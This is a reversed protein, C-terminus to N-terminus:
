KGLSSREECHCLKMNDDNSQAQGAIEHSAFKENLNFM